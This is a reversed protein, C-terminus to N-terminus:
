ELDNVGCKNFAYSVNNIRNPLLDLEDRQYNRVRRFVIDAASRLRTLHQHMLNPTNAFVGTFVVASKNTKEELSKHLTPARLVIQSICSNFRLSFLDMYYKSEKLDESYM